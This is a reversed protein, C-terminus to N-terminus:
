DDGDDSLVPRMSVQQIWLNDLNSNFVKSNPRIPTYAKYGPLARSSAITYRTVNSGGSGGAFIGKLTLQADPNAGTYLIVEGRSTDFDTKVVLNRQSDISVGLIGASGHHQNEYWNWNPGLRVIVSRYVLEWGDPAFSIHNFSLNPPAVMASPRFVPAPESQTPTPDPSPTEEVDDDAVAPGGLLLVFLLTLSWCIKKM